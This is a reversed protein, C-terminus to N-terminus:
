KQVILKKTTSAKGDIILSYFYVGESLDDVNLTLRGTSGSIYERKVENGTLDKIIIFAESAFSKLDYNFSVKSSAPNPYANSLTPTAVFTPVAVPTATYHVNVCVSDNTNAINYFTYLIVTEGLHGRPKYDGIFSHDDMVGAGITIPDPSVFVAPLYCMGWCFSNESGSITSVETKKVKVDLSGASTNTVFIHSEMVNYYGSDAYVYVNGGNSIAGGAYSLSLSQASAWFSITLLPILYLIKRM